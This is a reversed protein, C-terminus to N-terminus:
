TIRWSNIAERHSHLFAEDQAGLQQIEYALALMLAVDTNPRIPIWEANVFGPCDDRMPSINVVPTGKQALKQLWPKLAHEAAGGSSVQANEAGARWVGCVARLAGGREALKHRARDVALFHRDCVAPFVAGRGLQLQGASRGAAAASISGDCWRVRMICAGPRHGAMLAPLCGPPVTAIACGATRRRWWISRWSGTWRSSTKGAACSRDSGERKQLWSRRVAPKRIRKDSYVMPVISDLLPSPDPDDAFPECHILRGDEVVATYAGWHALQPYRKISM